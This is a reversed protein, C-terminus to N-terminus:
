AAVEVRARYVGAMAQAMYKDSGGGRGMGESLALARRKLNEPTVGGLREAMRDDDLSGDQALLAGLGRIVDGAPMYTEGWAKRLIVLVRELLEPGRRYVKELAAVASIMGAGAPGVEYGVRNAIEQIAIPEPDGAVIAARFRHASAIGRREKQLRAFLKAEDAQSLGHYVLCPVGIPAKDEAALNTIAAARTQGDVIAYLGRDRASVVLTGVLAPDFDREIRAAFTTLPRQYTDDVFLKSVELVKFEYPWQSM